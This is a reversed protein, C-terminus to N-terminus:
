VEEFSEPVWYGVTEKADLLSILTFRYQEPSKGVISRPDALLLKGRKRVAPWAM